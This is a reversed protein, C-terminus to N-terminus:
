KRAAQGESSLVLPGGNGHLRYGAWFFPHATKRPESLPLTNTLCERQTERLARDRPLSSLHHYFRESFALAVADDIPWLCALVSGAGRRCLTEPLSIIWRGPLVFNDAGWCSSLTVHRLRSLDLASLDRLSLIEAQGPRPILVLGSADPRDPLFLGHCAVHIVEARAWANLVTERDAGDRLARVALGRGALWQEAHMVEPLVARLAEAELTQGGLVVTVAGRIAVTLADTARGAPVPAPTATRDYTMTVAYKDVLYQDGLRLAAFPFGLLSDDAVLLLRTIRRPLRAILQPLRLGESLEGAMRDLSEPATEASVGRHWAAVLERVRLRTMPCVTVDLTMWGGCAVVVRDPLVLFSLTASDRPHGWLRRWLSVRPAPTAAGGGSVERMALQRRNDDLRHLFDHVRRWWRWRRWPRKWWAAAAVASREGALAESAGALFREEATWKNLLWIAREAPALSAALEDTVAQVRRDLERQAEPAAGLRAACWGRFRLAQWLDPKLGREELHPCIEAFLRAAARYDGGDYAVMGALANLRLSILPSDCDGFAQRLEDLRQEASEVAGNSLTWQVALAREEFFALFNDPQPLDPPLADQVVAEVAREPLMGLGRGGESSNQMGVVSPAIAVGEVLSASRAHALGRLWTARVAATRDGRLEALREVEGLLEEAVSVQNLLILVPAENLMARVAAETFGGRSCVELVRDLHRLAPGYEGRLLFRQATLELWHVLWGPNEREDLREDLGALIDAAEDLLAQEILVGALALRLPLWARCALASAPARAHAAGRQLLVAAHGYQGQGALWQGMSLYLRSFLLPRDPPVTGGHWRCAAEWAPLDQARFPVETLPGIRSELGELLELAQKLRGTGLALHVRKLALYDAAFLNGTAATDAALGALLLDAADVLGFPVALDALVEVLLRDGSTLTAKRALRRRLLGLALDLAQGWDGRHQAAEIEAFARDADEDGFLGIM